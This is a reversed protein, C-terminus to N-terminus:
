ATERETETEFEELIPLMKRLIGPYRDNLANSIAGTSVNLRQAIDAQYIPRLNHQKRHLNMKYLRSALEVPDLRDAVENGM